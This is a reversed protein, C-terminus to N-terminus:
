KSKTKHNVLSIFFIIGAVIGVLLGIWTGTPFTWDGSHDAQMAWVALVIAGVFVLGSVLRTKSM